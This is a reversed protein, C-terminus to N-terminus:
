KIQNLICKQKKDNKLIEKVQNLEQLNNVSTLLEPIRIPKIKIGMEIVKMQEISETAAFPTEPYETMQSLFDREYAILGQIKHIIKKFYKLNQSVPPTRFCSIIDDKENLLCKVKDIDVIEDDDKIESVANWVKFRPNNNIGEIFMDIYNPIMLPEDGQVLLVHSCNLHKIAENVRATGNTHKIKTKITSGGYNDVVSLIEEDGSAVFVNDVKKSLLVRRRVHEIMPLGHIDILIKNKLRVSNLHCPIIVEIKM